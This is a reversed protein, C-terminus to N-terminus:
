PLPFLILTSLIHTTTVRNKRRRWGPAEEGNALIIKEADRRKIVGHFWDEAQVSQFTPPTAVFPKSILCLSASAASFYLLSPLLNYSTPAELPYRM